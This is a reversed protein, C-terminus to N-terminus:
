ASGIKVPNSNIRNRYSVSPTTTYFRGLLSQAMVLQPENLNELVAVHAVCACTVKVADPPVTKIATITSTSIYM